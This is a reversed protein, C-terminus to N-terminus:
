KGVRWLSLESELESIYLNLKEVETKLASIALKLEAPSLEQNM